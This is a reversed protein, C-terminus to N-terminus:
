LTQFSHLRRAKYIDRNLAVNLQRMFYISDKAKDIDTVYVALVWKGDDFKLDNDNNSISFQDFNFYDKFFVGNNNTNSPSIGASFFLSSAIVVAIPTFLIISLLIKNKM